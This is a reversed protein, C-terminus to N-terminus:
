WDPPPPPIPEPPSVISSIIGRGLLVILVGLFTWLIIKKALAVKEPDDGATIFNFAAIIIMIPVVALAIVFILDALVNILEGVSESKLPNEISIAQILFPTLLFFSSSFLFIKKLHSNM